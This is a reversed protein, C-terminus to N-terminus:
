FSALLWRTPLLSILVPTGDLGQDGVTTDSTSCGEKRGTQPSCLLVYSEFPRGGEGGVCVCTVQGLM